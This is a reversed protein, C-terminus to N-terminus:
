RQRRECVPAGEYKRQNGCGPCSCPKRTRAIRGIARFDPNHMKWIALQRLARAKARVAEARREARTKM